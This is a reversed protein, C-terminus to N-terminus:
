KELKSIDEVTVIAHPSHPCGSKWSINLMSRVHSLFVQFYKQTHKPDGNPVFQKKKTKPYFLSTQKVSSLENYVLLEDHRYIDPDVNAWTFTKARRSWAMVQILTWKEGTFDMSMWRLFIEYSIGLGDTM